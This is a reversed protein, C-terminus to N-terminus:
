QGYTMLVKALEHDNDSYASWDISELSDISEGIRGADSLIRTITQSRPHLALELWKGEILVQGWFLITHGAVDNRMACIKNHLVIALKIGSMSCMAEIMSKEALAEDDDESYPMRAYDAQFVPTLSHQDDRIAFAPKRLFATDPLMLYELTPKLGLHKFVNLWAERPPAGHDLLNEFLSALAQLAEPPPFMGRRHSEDMDGFFDHVSRDSYPSPDYTEKLKAKGKFKFPQPREESTPSMSDLFKDIFEDSFGHHNLVAGFHNQREDLEDQDIVEDFQLSFTEYWMAEAEEDGEFDKLTADRRSLATFLEGVSEMEFFESYILIAISPSLGTTLTFVDVWDLFEESSAVNFKM